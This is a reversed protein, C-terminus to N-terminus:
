EFLGIIDMYGISGYLAVQGDIEIVPIMLMYKEHTADDQEIDVETWTFPYDDQALQLMRKAEECLPCGARTYFTLQMPYVENPKTGKTYDFFSHCARMGNRPDGAEAAEAEVAPVVEASDAM